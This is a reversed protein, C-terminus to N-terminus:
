RRTTAAPRACCRAAAAHGPTIQVYKVGTIGQAGRDAGHFEVRVPTGHEVRIDTIVRNPDRPDLAIHTIEGVKIGNFQVEGGKSLGSM